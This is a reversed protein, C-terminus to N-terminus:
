MVYFRCLMMILALSYLIVALYDSIARKGQMVKNGSYNNDHGYQVMRNVSFIQMVSNVTMTQHGANNLSKDNQVQCNWVVMISNEFDYTDGFGLLAQFAEIYRSSDFSGEAYNGTWLLDDLQNKFRGHFRLVSLSGKSTTQMVRSLDLIGSSPLNQLQGNVTLQFNAIGIDSHEYMGYNTRTVSDYIFHSQQLRPPVVVNTPIDAHGIFLLSDGDNNVEAYQVADNGLQADNIIGQRAIDSPPCIPPRRGMGMRMTFFKSIPIYLINNSIRAVDTVYPSGISSCCARYRNVFSQISGNQASSTALHSSLSAVEIGVSSRLEM